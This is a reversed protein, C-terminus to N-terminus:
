ARKKRRRFEAMGILAAGVLVLTAPEPVAPVPGTGYRPGALMQVAHGNLDVNSYIFALNSQKGVSVLEYMTAADLVAQDTPHDTSGQQVSGALLGDGNDHVIDWIALQIGAAQAATQVWDTSSLASQFNPDLVPFLANDILWSVRLLHKDPPIPVQSPSLVTTLYTGGLGISTFLDVCLTERLFTDDGQQLTIGIVGALASADIGNENISITEGLRLDTPVIFTSAAALGSSLLLVALFRFTLYSRVNKM